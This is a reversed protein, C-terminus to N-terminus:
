KNFTQSIIEYIKLDYIKNDLLISHKEEVGVIKGGEFVQIIKDNVKEAPSGVFSAFSVKRFKTLLEKIFENADPYLTKNIGRKYSIISFDTVKQQPIDVTASIYGVIQGSSDLSVMQIKNWSSDEITLTYNFWNAALFFKCHLANRTVFDRHVNLLQEKHNIAFDLM